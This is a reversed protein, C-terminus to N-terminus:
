MHCKGFYIIIAHLDVESVCNKLDLQIIIIHM